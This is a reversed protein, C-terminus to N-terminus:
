RSINPDMVQYTKLNMEQIRTELNFRFFLNCKFFIIISEGGGFQLRPVFKGMGYVVLKIATIQHPM